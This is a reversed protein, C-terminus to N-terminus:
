YNLGITHCQVVGDHGPEVLGDRERSDPALSLLIGTCGSSGFLGRKESRDFFALRRAHTVDFINFSGNFAKRWRFQRFKARPEVVEIGRQEVLPEFAIHAAALEVANGILSQRCM